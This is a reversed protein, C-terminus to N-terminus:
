CIFKQSNDIDKFLYFVNLKISNLFNNILLIVKFIGLIPIPFIADQRTSCWNKMLTLLNGVKKSIFEWIGFYNGLFSLAIIYQYICIFNTLQEPNM